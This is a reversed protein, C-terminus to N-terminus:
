LQETEINCKNLFEIGDDNRYIKRYYVKKIGAGYIMKACDICPAHTIFMAAGNGSDHNRALKLIANAEAHIVEPKTKTSGDELLNECTNDWGSPTGNYGSSIIRHEKVVICGVKLRTAYSLHSTLDAIQMYHHIYKDKM